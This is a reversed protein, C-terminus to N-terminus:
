EDGAGLEERFRSIRRQKRETFNSEGDGDSSSGSRTTTKTLEKGEDSGLFSDIRM